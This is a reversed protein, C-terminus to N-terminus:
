IIIKLLIIKFYFWHIYFHKFYKKGVSYINRSSNKIEQFFIHIPIQLFILITYRILYIQFQPFGIM